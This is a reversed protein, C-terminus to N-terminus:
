FVADHFRKLDTKKLLMRPVGLSQQWIVLRSFGSFWSFLRQSDTYTGQM